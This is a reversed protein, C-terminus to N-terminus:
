ALQYGDVTDLVLGKTYLDVDENRRANIWGAIGHEDVLKRPRTRDHGVFEAEGGGGRM